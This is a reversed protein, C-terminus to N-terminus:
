IVAPGCNASRFRLGKTFSSRTVALRSPPQRTQEIGKTGDSPPPRAIDMWFHPSGIKVLASKEMRAPGARASQEANGLQCDRLVASVLTTAAPPLPPRPNLM